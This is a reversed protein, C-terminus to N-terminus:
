VLAPRRLRVARIMEQQAPVDQMGPLFGEDVFPNNLGTVFNVFGPEPFTAAFGRPGAVLPLARVLETLLASEEAPLYLSAGPLRTWVAPSRGVEDWRRLGQACALGFLLAVFSRRATVRRAMWTLSTLLALPAAFAGYILNRLFFPQRSLAPLMAVALGCRAAATEGGTRSRAARVIEAIGIGAALPLLVHLDDNRSALRSALGAAFALPVFAPREAFRRTLVFWAAALLLGSPFLVELWGGGRFAAATTGGFVVSREYLELFPAPMALAILYGHRSMVDRGYLIVPAALALGALGAAVTAGLAADRRPRQMALAIAVAAVAAPAMELKCGGALGGVVGAAVAGAPGRASLALELAWWVGVTGELAAASYPFPYAGGTDFFCAAVVFSTVASACADDPSHRRALRRLAEVGLLGILTRLAILPDIERGFVRVLTADLFAPLPGYPYGVERYLAEGRAVRMATGMERASDQFPLIWRKFTAGFLLAFVVFPALAWVRASRVGGDSEATM